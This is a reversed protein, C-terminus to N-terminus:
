TPLKSEKDCCLKHNFAGLRMAKTLVIMITMVNSPNHFATSGMLVNFNQQNVSSEADANVATKNM